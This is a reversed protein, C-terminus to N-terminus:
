FGTRRDEIICDAFSFHGMVSAAATTNEFRQAHEIDAGFKPGTSTFEKFYNGEAKKIEEM